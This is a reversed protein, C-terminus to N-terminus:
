IRDLFPITDPLRDCEDLALTMRVASPKLFTKYGSRNLAEVISSNTPVNLSWRDPMVSDVLDLVQDMPGEYGVLTDTFSSKCIFISAESLNSYKIVEKAFAPAGNVLTKSIKTASSYKKTVKMVTSQAENRVVQGFLDTSDAEFNLKKYVEPKSTWLVLHNLKQIKAVELTKELLRTSLGIGRFNEAVCVLGVLGVKRVLDLSRHRLILSAATEKESGNDFVIRICYINHKDHIWPFHFEPSVGRNRSVFFIQWTLYIADPPVGSSVITEFKAYKIEDSAM